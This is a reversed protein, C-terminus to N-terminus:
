LPQYAMFDFWVVTWNPEKSECSLCFYKSHGFQKMNGFYQLVKSEGYYKSLVCHILMEISPKLM